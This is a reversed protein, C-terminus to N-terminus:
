LPKDIQKNGHINVQRELVRLAEDRNEEHTAHRRCTVEIGTPNHKIRVAYVSTEPLCGGFSFPTITLEVPNLM